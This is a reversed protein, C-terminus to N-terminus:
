SELQTFFDRLVEAVVEPKGEVDRNGAGLHTLGHMRTNTVGPIVKELEECSHICYSVSATGSMLRVRTDRLKRFSELTGEMEEVLRFDCVMTPVLDRLIPEADEDAGGAQGNSEQRSVFWNILPRLLWYPLSPLVPPGLGTIKMGTILASAIDDRAVEGRFREYLPNFRGRDVLLLPPEYIAARDFVGRRLLCTQLLILAGSSVGFGFRAGTERSLTEIDAVETQMGYDPGPPSSLGRGRRDPVYVTFTSSLLEALDRHSRWTELGGHIIILGPGQGLQRYSITAGDFSTITKTTM